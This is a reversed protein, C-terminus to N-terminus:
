YSINSKVSKYPDLEFRPNTVSIKIDWATTLDDVSTARFSLNMPSGTKNIASNRNIFNNGTAQVPINVLKSVEGSSNTGEVVLGDAIDYARFSVSVFGDKQVTLDVSYDINNKLTAPDSPNKGGTIERTTTENQYLQISIYEKNKWGTTSSTFNKDNKNRNMGGHFGDSKGFFRFWKKNQYKDSLESAKAQLAEKSAGSRELERLPEFVNEEIKKEYKKRKRDNVDEGSMGTPDIFRLPNNFAYTYPSWMKMADAKPDVTFFRGIQNDYMRAGYDTWELGSGDSFEQRQEEKGNYKLKNTPM